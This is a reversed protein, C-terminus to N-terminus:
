FRYFRLRKKYDFFFYKLFLKVNMYLDFLKVNM